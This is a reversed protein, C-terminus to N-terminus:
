LAYMSLQMEMEVSALNDTHLCQQCVSAFSVQHRWMLFERAQAISLNAAQPSVNLKM